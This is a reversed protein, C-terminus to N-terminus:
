ALRGLDPRLDRIQALHRGSREVRDVAQRELQTRTHQVIKAQDGRHLSLVHHADGTARLYVADDRAEVVDLHWVATYFGTAKALDPTYLAVSRLAEISSSNM